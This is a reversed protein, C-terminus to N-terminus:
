PMSASRKSTDGASRSRTSSTAASAGASSGEPPRTSPGSATRSSSPIPMPWNRGVSLVAVSKTSDLELRQKQRAEAAFATTDQPGARHGRVGRPRRRRRGPHGENGPRRVEGGRHGARRRREGSAFEPPPTTDAPPASEGASDSRKADGCGALLGLGGAAAGLRRALHLAPAIMSPARRRGAHGGGGRRGM